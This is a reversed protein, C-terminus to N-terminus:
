LSKFMLSSRPRANMKKNEKRLLNLSESFNIHPPSVRPRFGHQEPILINERELHDNLRALIVKEALKSLVPLLSIPRYSEALASNKDPKLIPIFLRLRGLCLFTDRPDSYNCGWSTHKANYDGAKRPKPFLPCETSSAMHGQANCNICTPNVIKEKIECQGTRHGGGCKLCRTMVFTTNYMRSHPMVVIPQVIPDPLRPKQAKDPHHNKLLKQRPQSSLLQERTPQQTFHVTVGIPQEPPKHILGDM